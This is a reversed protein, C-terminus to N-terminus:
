KDVYPKIEMSGDPHMLYELNTDTDICFCTINQEKARKKWREITFNFFEMEEKSKTMKLENM